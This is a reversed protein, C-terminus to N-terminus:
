IEHLGSVVILTSAVVLLHLSLSELDVANQFRDPAFVMGPFIFKKEFFITAVNLSYIYVCHEVFFTKSGMLINFLPPSIFHNSTFTSQM